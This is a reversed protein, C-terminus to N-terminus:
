IKFKIFINIIMLNYKVGKIIIKLGREGEGFFYIINFLFLVM